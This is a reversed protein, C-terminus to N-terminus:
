RHLGRFELAWTSGFSRCLGVNVIVDYESSVASKRTLVLLLPSGESSFAVLHVNM